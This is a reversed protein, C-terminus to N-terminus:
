DLWGNAVWARTDAYLDDYSEVGAYTDSGAPDTAANRWVGFPSVGFRVEPKLSKIREHLEYILANVSVRRWDALSYWAAGFQQYTAQDPFPVGLVPYPYFYDDLHLGDLQYRAIPQMIAEVVFRRADPHGPNYMLKGDYVVTWEPHLRAPHNEPLAALDPNSSIRYPNVWAHLELGRRHAETVAYELPDYSPPTGADGILWRSWPELAGPWIADASPRIQLFVATLHRSSAADLLGNLESRQQEDSLGPASPWDLNRVTALWAGRM